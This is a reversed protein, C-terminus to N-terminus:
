TTMAKIPYRKDQNKKDVEKIEDDVTKVEAAFTMINADIPEIKYDTTTARTGIAKTKIIITKINASTTGTKDSTTTILADISV